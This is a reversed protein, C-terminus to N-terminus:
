WSIKLPWCGLEFRFKADWGLAILCEAIAAEAAAENEYYLSGQEITKVDDLGVELESLGRAAAVNISKEILKLTKQGSTSAIFLLRGRLSGDLNFEHGWYYVSSSAKASRSAHQLKQRLGHFEEELEAEGEGYFQRERAKNAKLCENVVSFFERRSTNPDEVCVLDRIRPPWEQANKSVAHILAGVSLRPTKALTILKELDRQSVSNFIVDSVKQAQHFNLIVEDSFLSPVSIWRALYDRLRIMEENDVSVGSGILSYWYKSRGKGMEVLESGLTTKKLGDQKLADELLFHTGPLDLRIYFHGESARRYFKRKIEDYFSPFNAEIEQSKEKILSQKKRRLAEIEQEVAQRREEEVKREHLIKETLTKAQSPKLM